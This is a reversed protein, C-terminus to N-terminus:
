QGRERLQAEMGEIIDQRAKLIDAAVIRCEGVKEFEDFHLREHHAYVQRNDATPIFMFAVIGWSKVEQATMLAPFRKHEQKTVQVIDGPLILPPEKPPQSAM